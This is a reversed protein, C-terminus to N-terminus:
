ISDIFKEKGLKETVVDDLESLFKQARKLEPLNRNGVIPGSGSTRLTRWIDALTCENVSNQPLYRAPEDSTTVVLSIEQLYRLSQEINMPSLGMQIALEEETFPPLKKYFRHIILAALTLALEERQNISLSISKRGIRAKNPYQHYYAIDSGMLAVLWGVYAFIMIALVSAFALYISERAATIFFDQFFSGMFKWVITTVLGGIFASTFKVKTNPLFSYAFAFALSMFLLPFLFAFFEVIASGYSLNELFATFFTTNVSSTISISIFILLPSVIVAFLYESVRNSWSRGQSVCWIYNFSTEIKRMMDLVLYILLGLSTIGIIEVQINDVFGIIQQTIQERRDGLAELLTLLTPEMANHVGLSKLVAFILALTPIFGLITSYVLSMARLSLQGENWDRIVAFIIQASRVLFRQWIPLSEVDQEWLLRNTEQQITKKLTTFKLSELSM